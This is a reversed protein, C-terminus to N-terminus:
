LAIRERDHPCYKNYGLSQNCNHCLIRFGPPFNNQVLWRVIRPAVEKRHKAGGGNIHDIALFEYRSEGCCACKSGGYHELVARRKARDAENLQERRQAYNRRYWVGAYTRRATRFQPNDKVKEYYKSNYIRTCSKCRSGVNKQHLRHSYFDTVPLLQKCGICHKKM